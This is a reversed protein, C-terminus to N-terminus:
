KINKVTNMENLQGYSFECDQDYLRAIYPDRGM